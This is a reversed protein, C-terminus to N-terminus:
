LLERCWSSYQHSQRSGDLYYSICRNHNPQWKCPSDSAIRRSKVQNIQHISCHISLWWWDQFQYYRRGQVREHVKTLAGTMFPFQIMQHLLMRLPLWTICTRTV